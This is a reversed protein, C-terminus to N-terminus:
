SQEDTASQNAETRDIWEKCAESIRNLILADEKSWHHDLDGKPLGLLDNLVGIRYFEINTFLAEALREVSGGPGYASEVLMCLEKGFTHGDSENRDTVFISYHELPGSPEQNEITIKFM